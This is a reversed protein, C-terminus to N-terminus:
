YSVEELRVLIDGANRKVMVGRLPAKESYAYWSTPSFDTWQFSPLQSNQFDNLDINAGQNSSLCNFKETFALAKHNKSLLKWNQDLSKTYFHIRLNRLSQKAKGLTLCRDIDIIFKHHSPEKQDIDPSSSMEITIEADRVATVEYTEFLYPRLFDNKEHSWESYSWVWRDGITFQDKLITPPKGSVNLSLTLITFNLFGFIIHKM